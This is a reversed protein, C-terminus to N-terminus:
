GNETEEAEEDPGVPHFGQAAMLFMFMEVSVEVYRRGEIHVGEMQPFKDHVQVFVDTDGANHDTEKKRFRIGVEGTNKGFEIM